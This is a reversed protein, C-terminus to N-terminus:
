TNFQRDVRATDKKSAKVELVKLDTSVRLISLNTFTM